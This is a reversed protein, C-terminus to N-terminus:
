LAGRLRLVFQLFEVVLPLWDTYTQRDVVVAPIADTARITTTPKASLSVVYQVVALVAQAQKDDTLLSEWRDLWTQDVGFFAGLRGVLEVLKRFQDISGFPDDLDRVAAVLDLVDRLKTLREFPGGRVALTSTTM